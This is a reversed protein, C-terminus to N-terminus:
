RSLYEASRPSLMLRLQLQSGESHCYMSHPVVPHVVNVRRQHSPAHRPRLETARVRGSERRGVRPDLRSALRSRGLRTSM